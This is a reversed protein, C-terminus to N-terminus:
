VDNDTYADRQEEPKRFSTRRWSVPMKGDGAGALSRRAWLTTCGALQSVVTGSNEEPSSALLNANQRVREKGANNKERERERECVSCHALQLHSRIRKNRNRGWVTNQWCVQVYPEMEEQKLANSNVPRESSTSYIEKELSHVSVITQLQQAWVM